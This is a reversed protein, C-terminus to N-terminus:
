LRSFSMSLSSLVKVIIIGLDPDEKPFEWIVPSVRFVLVPLSPDATVIMFPMPLFMSYLYTSHHM